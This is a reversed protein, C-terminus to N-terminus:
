NSVFGGTTYFTENKTTKGTLTWKYRRHSDLKINNFEIRNTASTKEGIIVNQGKDIKQLRVSYSIANEVAPWKFKLTSNNVLEIDVNNFIKIKKFANSFFGIGPQTNEGSFQIVANDQYSAIKMANDQESIQINILFVIMVTALGTAPVMVWAPTPLTFYKKLLGLLDIKTTKKTIIIEAEPLERQMASQHSAYHLAAKLAKPDNKILTDIDQQENKNLSGNIYSEIKGDVVATELENSKKQKVEQKVLHQMFDASQIDKQLTSLRTAQQRCDSCSALHLELDKYEQSDPNDIFAIINETDPHSEIKM